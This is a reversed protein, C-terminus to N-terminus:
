VARGRTGVVAVLQDLDAVSVGFLGGWPTRWHISPIMDARRIKRLAAAKPARGYIELASGDFSTILCVRLDPAVTRLVDLVLEYDALTPGHQVSVPSANRKTRENKFPSSTTRLSGAMARRAEENQATM